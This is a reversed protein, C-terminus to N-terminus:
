HMDDKINLAHVQQAAVITEKWYLPPEILFWSRFITKFWAVELFRSKFAPQIGAM